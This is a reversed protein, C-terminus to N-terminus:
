DVNKDIVHQKSDNIHQKELDYFYDSEVCIKLALTAYLSFPGKLYPEREIWSEDIITFTQLDKKLRRMFFKKWLLLYAKAEDKEDPLFEAHEGFFKKM